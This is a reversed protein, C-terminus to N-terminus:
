RRTPKLNPWQCSTSQAAITNQEGMAMWVMDATDRRDFGRESALRRNMWVVALLKLRDVVERTNRIVERIDHTLFVEHIAAHKAPVVEVDFHHVRWTM